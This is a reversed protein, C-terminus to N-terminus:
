AACPDRRSDKDAKEQDENPEGHVALPDFRFATVHLV